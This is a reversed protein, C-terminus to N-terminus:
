GCLGTQPLDKGVEWAQVDLNDYHRVPPADQPKSVQPGVAHADWDPFNRQVNSASAEMRLMAQRGQDVAPSVVLVQEIVAEVKHTGRQM